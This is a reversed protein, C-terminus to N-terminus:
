SIGDSAATTEVLIINNVPILLKYGVKVEQFRSYIFLSWKPLCYICWYMVESFPKRQKICSASRVSVWCNDMTPIGRYHREHVHLIVQIYNLTKLTNGSWNAHNIFYLISIYVMFRCVIHRSTTSALPRPKFRWSQNNKSLVNHTSFFPM